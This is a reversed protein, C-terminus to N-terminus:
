PKVIRREPYIIMHNDVQASELGLATLVTEKNENQFTMLFRVDGCKLHFEYIETVSEVKGNGATVFDNIFNGKRDVFSCHNKLLSLITDGQSSFYKPKFYQQATGDAIANLIAESQKKADKRLQSSGFSCGVILLMFSFKIIYINIRKAM